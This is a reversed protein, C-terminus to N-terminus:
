SSASSYQRLAFRWYVLSLYFLIFGIGLSALLLQWSLLGFLAKAPITFMIGIPVIFTLFSRIPETFFDVPIRMLSTLDRYVMILHDVSTTLIGIALVFIHFATAIVLSNILLLVFTSVTTITIGSISRSVLALAVVFLVLMGADIFDPGGFLARILPNIPKSLVFDFSGTVIQSRFRYVERYLLQASTDILNFVLYFIVAQAPTYGGLQSISNVLFYLFSAFLGYRLIKNILFLVFGFPNNLQMQLSNTFFLWIVKLEKM